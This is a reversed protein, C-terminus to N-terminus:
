KLLNYFEKFLKIRENLGISGGNIKKTLETVVQDTPGKDCISWLNNNNFFFLASQLPYKTSVLDPNELINETVTKDFSIYNNKGTLQIYGRGRFKYGEKSNEDGNGMRSAYVRSAIKEPKREYQLALADTPFYKSFISRLSKAGYNLNESTTKFNLSEHSCQSLFHALRLPTNAVKIINPLENYVSDPIVGKLKIINM